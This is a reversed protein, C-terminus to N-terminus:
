WRSHSDIKYGRSVPTLLMSASIVECDTSLPSPSTRHSEGRRRPRRAQAALWLRAVTATIHREPGVSSASALSTTSAPAMLTTRSAM